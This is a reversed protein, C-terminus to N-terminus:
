VTVAVMPRTAGPPFLATFDGARWRESANLFVTRYARAKERFEEFLRRSSTHCLPRPTRAPREPRHQPRQALVWARGRVRKHLAAGHEKIGELL